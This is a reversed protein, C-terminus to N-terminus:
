DELEITSKEKTENISINPFIKKIKEKEKENLGLERKFSLDLIFFYKLGSLNQIMEILQNKELKCDKIVAFVKLVKLLKIINIFEPYISLDFNYFFIKELNYNDNTIYKFLVLFDTGSLKFGRNSTYNEIDEEEDSFGISNINNFINKKKEEPIDEEIGCLKTTNEIYYYDNFNIKNCYRKEINIIEYEYNEEYKDIIRIDAKFLYKGGVTKTFLYQAITLYYAQISGSTMILDNAIDLQFHELNKLNKENFIISSESKIEEIGSSQNLYMWGDGVYFTHYIFKTIFEFDFIEYLFNITFCEDYDRVRFDEDDSDDIGLSIDLFKLNETKIHIDDQNEDMIIRDIYLKKLNSLSINKEKSTFKLGKIKRLYLIELNLLVSCPIELDYFSYLNLEKLNTVLSELKISDPISYSLSLVTIQSLNSFNEDQEVEDFSKEYNIEKGENELDEILKNITSENFPYNSTFYETDKYNILAPTIIKYFYRKQYTYLSIDLNSKLNNNYKIIELVRKDDIFSFLTNLIYKNLKILSM